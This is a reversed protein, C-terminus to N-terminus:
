QQTQQPVSLETTVIIWDKWNHSVQSTGWSINPTTIVMLLKLIKRLGVIRMEGTEYILTGFQKISVELFRLINMGYYFMILKTLISVVLHGVKRGRLIGCSWQIIEAEASWLDMKANWRLLKRQIGMSIITRIGKTRPWTELSKWTM